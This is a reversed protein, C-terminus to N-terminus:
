ILASARLCSELWCATKASLTSFCYCVAVSNWATWRTSKKVFAARHEGFCDDSRMFRRPTFCLAGIFVRAYQIFVPQNTHHRIIVKGFGTWPRFATFDGSGPRLGAKGIPRNGGSWGEHRTGEAAAVPRCIYCFVPAAVLLVLARGRPKLYFSGRYNTSFRM